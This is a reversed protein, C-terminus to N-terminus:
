CAGALRFLRRVPFPRHRPSDGRPAGGGLSLAALHRGRHLPLQRDRCRRAGHHLQLAAEARRNRFLHRSLHHRLSSRALPGARLATWAPARSRAHIIAVGEERCLRKMRLINLALKAPNKTAAPFRIWEGGQAQLEAVLRGGESAVLARAGAEVLGSAVDIATREAGGADLSPIVQLITRGQLAMRGAPPFITTSPHMAWGHCSSRLSFLFRDLSEFIEFRRTSLGANLLRSGAETSRRKPTALAAQTWPSEASTRSSRGTTPCFARRWWSVEGKIRIIASLSATLAEVLAEDARVGTEAFLTMADQDEARTVVLRLRGVEKHRRQIEAIQEPRVFMGKVKTAQDARGM